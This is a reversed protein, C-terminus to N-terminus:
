GLWPVVMLRGCGERRAEEVSPLDIKHFRNPDRPILIHDPTM